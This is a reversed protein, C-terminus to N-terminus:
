QIDQNDVILAAIEEDTSKEATRPEKSELGEEPAPYITEQKIVPSMECYSRVAEDLNDIPVAAARGLDSRKKLMWWLEMLMYILMAFGYVCIAIIFVNILIDIFNNWKSLLRATLYPFLYTWLPIFILLLLMADFVISKLPEVDRANLSQLRKFDVAASDDGHESERKFCELALSYCIGREYPSLDTGREWREEFLRGYVFTKKCRLGAQALWFVAKQHESYSRGFEYYISHNRSRRSHIKALWMMAKADGQLAAREYWKEAIVDDLTVGRGKEYRAALERQAESFGRIAEEFTIYLPHRCIVPYRRFADRLAEMDPLETVSAGNCLILAAEVDGQAAARHLWLTADAASLGARMGLLRQAPAYGQEAAKRCFDIEADSGYGLYLMMYQAEQCGLRAAKLFCDYGAHGNARMKHGAECLAELAPAYGLQVAKEYCDVAEDYDWRKLLRRATACLAEAEDSPVSNTKEPKSDPSIETINRQHSLENSM